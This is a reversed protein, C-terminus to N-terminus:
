SIWIGVEEWILYLFHITERILSLIKVQHKVEFNLCQILPEGELDHRSGDNQLPKYSLLHQMQSSSGPPTEVNSM